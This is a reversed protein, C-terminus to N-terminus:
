KQKSMFHYKIIESIVSFLFFILTGIVFISFLQLWVPPIYTNEDFALVKIGGLVFTIVALAIGFLVANRMNGKLTKKLYNKM